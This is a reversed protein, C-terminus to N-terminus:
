SRSAPRPPAPGSPGTSFSPLLAGLRPADAAVWGMEWEWADALFYKKACVICDAFFCGSKGQFVPCFLTPHVPRSLMPCFVNSAPCIVFRGTNRRVARPKPAKPKM